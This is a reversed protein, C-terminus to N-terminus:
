FVRFFQTHFIKRLECARQGHPWEARLVKPYWWWWATCRNRRGAATTKPTSNASSEAGSGSGDPQTNRRHHPPRCGLAHALPPNFHCSQPAPTFASARDPWPPLRATAPRGISDSASRLPSLKECPAFIKQARSGAFRRLRFRRTAPPRLGPLKARKELVFQHSSTPLWIYESAPLSPRINKPKWDAEIIKSIFQFIKDSM